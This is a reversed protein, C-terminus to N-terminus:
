AAAEAELAALAVQLQRAREGLTAAMTRAAALRATRAGAAAGAPIPELELRRVAQAARELSPSLRALRASLLEQRHRFYASSM